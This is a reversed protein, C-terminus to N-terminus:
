AVTDTFSDTLIREPLAGLARAKEVCTDVFGPAGAALVWHRGLDPFAQDLWAPIRGQRWGTAPAVDVARSLTVVHSFGAHRRSLRHLADLAFVESRDRVSLVLTMPHAFSSALARRAISLIPALGSGGALCLVPGDATRPLHFNGYPGHIAVPTGLRGDGHLWGSAKGAEHRRIFFELLGDPPEGQEDPATAISYTRPKGVGETRIEVHQGARYRFRVSPPLAIVLRRISPTVPEAALVTSTAEIPAPPAEEPSAMANDPQIVLRDSLPKSQCILCKGAAKEEESIAFSMVWGHDVEGELVESKCTGCAGGRCNHPLPLGAALGADLILEDRGCGFSQGTGAVIVETRGPEDELM